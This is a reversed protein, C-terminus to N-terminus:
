RIEECKGNPREVVVAVYFGLVAANEKFNGRQHLALRTHPGGHLEPARSGATQLGPRAPRALLCQAASRRRVPRPWGGTM